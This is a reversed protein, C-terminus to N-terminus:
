AVRKAIAAGAENAALRIESKTAGSRALGHLGLASAFVFNALGADGRALKKLKRLLQGRARLVHKQVNRDLVSVNLLTESFLCGRSGQASVFDGVTRIFDPLAGPDSRDLMTLRPLLIQELYRGFAEIFAHPKDHFARYFSGRLIGASEQLKDVDAGAYGHTWFVDVFADLAVDRDFNRPRGAM